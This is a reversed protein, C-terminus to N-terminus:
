CGMCHSIVIMDLIINNAHIYNLLYTITSTACSCFRTTEHIFGLIITFLITRCEHQHKCIWIVKFANNTYIVHGSTSNFVFKSVTSWGKPRFFWKAGRHKMCIYTSSVDCRLNRLVFDRFWIKAKQTSYHNESDFISKHLHYIVIFAPCGHINVRQNTPLNFSVTWLVATSM